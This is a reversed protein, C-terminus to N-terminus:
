AEQDEALFNDLAHFKDNWFAEYFRMWESAQKLPEADIRCLHTRGDITRKLLGANELAKVHKTIASKSMDFPEALEAVTMVDNGM